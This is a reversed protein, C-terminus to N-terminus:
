EAGQAGERRLLASKVATGYRFGGISGNSRRIRHCPVFLAAANRACASAAARSASPNGSLRALETYTLATGAPIERLRSWAQEIFPGGAQLVPVDQPANDDGGYYSRVAAVARALVGDSDEESCMEIHSPRLSPHILESLETPDSTWGSALVYEARDAGVGGYGAVVTFPGDPTSVTCSRATGNTTM